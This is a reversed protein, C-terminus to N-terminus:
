SVRRRRNVDFLKPLGVQDSRERRPPLVAGDWMTLPPEHPVDVAHLVPSM